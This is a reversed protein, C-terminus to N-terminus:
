KCVEERLCLRKTGNREKMYRRFNLGAMGFCFVAFGVIVLQSEFPMHHEIAWPSFAILLFVFALFVYFVAFFDDMM